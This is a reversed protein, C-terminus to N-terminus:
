FAITYNLGVWYQPDEGETSGNLTVTFKGSELTHELGITGRLWNQDYSKGEVDFSSLGIIQGTSSSGSEEIRHVGELTGIIRNNKNINYDGDIGIRWDQISEKNKDYSVPFGGGTETYGDTKVKVINYEIYPHIAIDVITNANQLQLRARLANITQETDGYSADNIGGNDYGRKVEVDSTGHLLTVTTYLPLTTPLKVDMDVAIYKGHGKSRGNYLLSNKTWTKGLAVSFSVDDNYKYGLGVEAIHSDDNSDDRNDYALDGAIWLIRKSDVARQSGPHGHAGHMITNSLSVGQSGISGASQLSESFSTTGIIGSVERAIFAEKKGSIVGDGVIITGDDSVDSASMESWSSLDIKLWDSLSQMGTSATWRFAGNTDGDSDELYGVIVTGDSNTGRASSAFSGSLFGLGTMTGGEWRFAETVSGNDSEGIVISGDASVDYAESYNSGGSLYGLGVMGSGATWRYAEKNNSANLSQGVIVTGDSNVGWAEGQNIGGPLTGLSVMGTGATWRFSETYAGSDSSESSGVVTLGDGSVANADSYNGGTLVGLDVMGGAQTWRFARYEGSLLNSQGVIVSGDDSIGNGHSTNGGLTGLSVIGSADTWTVAKYGGDYSDGVVISGDASVGYAHSVTTGSSIADLVEIEGNAAYASNVILLSSTVISLLLRRNKITKM